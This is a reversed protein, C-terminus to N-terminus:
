LSYFKTSNQAYRALTESLNNKEISNYVKENNKSKLDFKHTDSRNLLTNLVEQPNNVLNEYKIINESYDAYTKFFWDLIKVQRILLDKEKVIERIEKSYIEGIKIKGESIPINLSRWSMLVFLPSRVVSCVKWAEEDILAKICATFLTNSKICIILDKSYEIHVKRTEKLNIIKNKQRNYYNEPLHNTGKEVTMEVPNGKKVENRIQNVKETLNNKFEECSQKDHRIEKLWTPESFCLTNQQESILKTILSTGSRPIGTILLTKQM